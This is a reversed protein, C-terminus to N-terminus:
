IGCATWLHSQRDRGPLSEEPDNAWIGRVDFTIIAHNPFKKKLFGPMFDKGQTGRHGSSKRVLKQCSTAVSHHKSQEIMSLPLARSNGYEQHIGYAVLQVQPEDSM